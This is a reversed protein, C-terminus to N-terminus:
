PTFVRDSSVGISRLSGVSDPLNDCDMFSKVADSCKSFEVVQPHSGDCQM